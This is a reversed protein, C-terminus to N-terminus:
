EGVIEIAESPLAIITGTVGDQGSFSNWTLVTNATASWHKLHSQRFNLPIFYHILLAAVLLYMSHYVM